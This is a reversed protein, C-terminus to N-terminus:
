TEGGGGNKEHRHDFDRGGGGAAESIPVLVARVALNPVMGLSLAM